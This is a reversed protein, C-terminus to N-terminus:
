PKIWASCGVMEVPLFFFFNGQASNLFISLETKGEGKLEKGRKRGKSVVVVEFFYV